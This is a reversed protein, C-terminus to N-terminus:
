QKVGVREKPEDRAVCAQTSRRAGGCEVSVVDVAEPLKRLACDGEQNLENPRNEKDFWSEDNIQLSVLPHKAFRVGACVAPATYASECVLRGEM